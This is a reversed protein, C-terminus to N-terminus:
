VTFDALCHSDHILTNLHLIFSIENVVQRYADIGIFVRLFHRGPSPRIGLLSEPALVSIEPILNSSPCLRTLEWVQLILNFITQLGSGLRPGLNLVLYWPILTYAHFQYKTYFIRSLYFYWAQNLMSWHLLPFLFFWLFLFLFDKQIRLFIQYTCDVNQRIFYLFFFM